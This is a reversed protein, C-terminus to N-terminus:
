SESIKPHIKALIEYLENLTRHTRIVFTRETATATESLVGFRKLLYRAEVSNEVTVTIKPSHTKM